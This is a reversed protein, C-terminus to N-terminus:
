RNDVSKTSLIDLDFQGDLLAVFRYPREALLKGRHVRTEELAQKVRDAHDWWQKTSNGGGTNGANGGSITAYLEQGTKYGDFGGVRKFSYKTV